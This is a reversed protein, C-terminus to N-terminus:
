ISGIEKYFGLRRKYSNMLRTVNEDVVDVV